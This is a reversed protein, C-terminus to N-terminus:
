KTIPPPVPPPPTPDSFEINSGEGYDLGNQPKAEHWLEASDVVTDTKSLDVPQANLAQVPPLGIGSTSRVEKTIGAPHSDTHPTAIKTQGMITSSHTMMPTPQLVKDATSDDDQDPNYSLGTFSKDDGLVSRGSGLGTKLDTEETPKVEPKTEVKAPEAVVPHEIILAGNEARSTQKTEDVEPLQNVADASTTVPPVRNFLEKAVLEQNAGAALLKSSVSMTDSTTKANSFQATEEIIGSLLANSIQTDLLGEPKLATSLGVLMESLSSAKPDSWNITGLSSPTTTNITVVTADHLIRGHETIVQDLEERKVIGLAVVIDVNYDGM